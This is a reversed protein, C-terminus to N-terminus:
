VGDEVAVASSLTTLEDLLDSELDDAHEATITEDASTSSSTNYTTETHSLGVNLASSTTNLAEEGFLVTTANQLQLAGSAGHGAHDTFDMMEIGLTRAVLSVLADEFRDARPQLLHTFDTEVRRDLATVRSELGAMQSELSQLSLALVALLDHYRVFRFGTHADVAVVAPVLAELEQAIFGFRSFKSESNAKYRFSVPRLARLLAM